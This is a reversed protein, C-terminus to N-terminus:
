VSLVVCLEQVSSVNFLELADSPAHAVIKEKLEKIRQAAVDAAKTSTSSSAHAHPTPVDSETGTGTGTPQAGAVAAPSLLTLPSVAPPVAVTDKSPSLTRLQAEASQESTASLDIHSPEPAIPSLHSHSLAALVASEAVSQDERDNFVSSDHRSRNGAPGSHDADSHDDDGHAREGDTGGEAEGSKWDHGQKPSRGSLPVDVGAQFALDAEDYSLRSLSSRRSRSPTSPEDVSAASDSRGVDKLPVPLVNGSSMLRGGSQSLFSSRLLRVSKSNQMNNLMGSNLSEELIKNSDTLVYKRKNEDLAAKASQLLTEKSYSRFFTFQADIM